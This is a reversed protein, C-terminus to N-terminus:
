ECILHKKNLEYYCNLNYQRKNITTYIWPLGHWSLSFKILWWRKFMVFVNYKHINIYRAFREEMENIILKWWIRFSGTILIKCIVLTTQCWNLTPQNLTFLFFFTHYIPSLEEFEIQGMVFWKLMFNWKYYNLIHFGSM